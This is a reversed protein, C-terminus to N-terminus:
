KVSNFIISFITGEGLKSQVSIKGNNREVLQKVIFLGLGTGQGPEKTTFFPDFIQKLVADSIGPGDDCVDVRFNSGSLNQGTIKIQGHKKESKMIAQTANRILNFFIEQIQKKDASIVPLDKPIDRVIDVDSLKLDHELLSIVEVLEKDIQVGPEAVGKAPKAFASLKRTISAARDTEKIVKEMIEKAKEVLQESTKEKYFGEKLNLLFMECQGRVIGLPNCIEHNIGASLTGIVAMKEKQATQAQTQSLKAFLQANTIAIAVTRSLPLLIDIDDQTYNEDSKKAGLVLVGLINEDHSLMIILEANIDSIKKYFEPSQKKIKDLFESDKLIYQGSEKLVKWFGMGDSITHEDPESSGSSAALKLQNEDDEYLYIAAYHSKIIESLKTVTLNVLVGIKLVTLVENTFTKLLEKYNYKKQFLYKDTINVLFKELPKLILVIAFISPIIAIYRNPFINGFINSGVYVFVSFITYTFIFIGAFVVTKKIIVEINLFRHRVITYAISAIFCFACIYGFPYINVVPYKAIYDVVGLTGVAFAILVSRFQKRKLPAFELNNLNKFLLLAAHSFLLSFVSLVFPYGRGALPYFGWKLLRVNAYVIDTYCAIFSIVGFTYATILIQRRRLGLLSLVFHYAFIPILCVGMGGIRAWILAIDSSHSLYMMSFALLWWVMSYCFLFFTIHIINSRNKILVFFGIAAVLLGTIFPPVAYFNM